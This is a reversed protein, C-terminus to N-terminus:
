TRTLSILLSPLGSLVLVVSSLRSFRGDVSFCSAGFIDLDSFCGEIMRVNPLMLMKVM